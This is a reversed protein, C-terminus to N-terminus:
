QLIKTIDEGSLVENKLLESAIKHLEDTNESLLVKTREYISNVISIIERDIITQTEPSYNDHWAISSLKDSFGYHTVMFNAINHVVKMDNSAGTTIENKSFIIEEAIRGGLAIAIQNELYERSYLGTDIDEDKPEFITVGGTKGRPIISVTRINEYLKTKIAVLTHGAEHYAVIKKKTPSMVIDRRDGLLIKNLANQFDEYSIKTKDNQAALIASENALNALDAGSFGTTMKAVNEIIDVNELPKNKTHVKLISVRSKYDPLDVKVQRDFRGPRLLAPDLVDPRNTAAIVIVGKNEKFGDMETLLQNITQEREDNGGMMNLSGRMKGIADIEDIFIISPSKKSAKEFLARVRSAGVGVFLQIMESASCSFFPVNAEGAVSKALLTKGCGPSGVLLVGTPIKAGLKTFKEPNKLFEVIEQLDRKANDIGAVDDFKVSPTSSENGINQTFDTMGKRQSIFQYGISILSTLIVFEFFYTTLNSISWPNDKYFLSINKRNVKNIFDLSRDSPVDMEITENDITLIKVKKSQKTLEVSVIKDDEIMKSLDEYGIPQEYENEIFLLPANYSIFHKVSSKDSVQNLHTYKSAHMEHMGHMGHMGNFGSTINTPPKSIYDFSIQAKPKLFTRSIKYM